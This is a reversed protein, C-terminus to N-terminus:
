MEATFDKFKPTQDYDFDKTNSNNVFMEPHNKM